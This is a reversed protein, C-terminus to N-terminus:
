LYKRSVEIGYFINRNVNVNYKLIKRYFLRTTKRNGAKTENEHITVDHLQRTVFNDLAVTRIFMM